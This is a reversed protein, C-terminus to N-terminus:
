ALSLMALVLVLVVVYYYSVTLRCFDVVKKMVRAEERSSAYLRVNPVAPLLEAIFKDIIVKLALDVSEPRIEDLADLVFLIRPPTTNEGDQLALLPARILTDFAVSANTSSFAAAITQHSLKELAAKFEPVRDRLQTSLSHIMNVPNHTSADNHRFFHCAYICGALKGAHEDTEDVDMRRLMEATFVTKGTGAGGMLWFVPGHFPSNGAAQKQSEIGGDASLWSAIDKFLWERTGAMASDAKEKRYAVQNIPVSEAMDRDFIHKVPDVSLSLSRHIPLSQTPACHAVSSVRRISLSALLLNSIGEGRICSRFFTNSQFLETVGCVM